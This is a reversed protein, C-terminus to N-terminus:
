APPTDADYAEIIAAVLPHRVVDKATFYNIGAAIMEDYNDRTFTVFNYNAKPDKRGKGDDRFNRSTGVILDSRLVLRRVAIPQLGAAAFRHRELAFRTVIQAGQPGALVEQGRLDVALLGVLIEGRLRPRRQTRRPPGIPPRAGDAAAHDLRLM